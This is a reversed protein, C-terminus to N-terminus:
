LKGIKTRNIPLAIHPTCVLENGANDGKRTEGESEREREREREVEEGTGGCDVHIQLKGRASWREGKM